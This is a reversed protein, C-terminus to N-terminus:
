TICAKCHCLGNCGYGESVTSFHEARHRCFYYLCVNGCFLLHSFYVHRAVDAVATEWIQM